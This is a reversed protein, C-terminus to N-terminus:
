RASGYCALLFTSLGVLHKTEKILPTLMGELLLPSPNEEDDNGAAQCVYLPLRTEFDLQVFFHM